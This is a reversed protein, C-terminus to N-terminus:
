ARVASDFKAKSNGNLAALYHDVLDTYYFDGSCTGGKLKAQAIKNAIDV